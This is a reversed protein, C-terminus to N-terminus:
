YEGLDALFIIGALDLWTLLYNLNLFLDNQISFGLKRLYTNKGHDLKMEQNIKNM